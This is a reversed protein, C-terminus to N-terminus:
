MGHAPGEPADLRGVVAVIGLAKIVRHGRAECTLTPLTFQIHRLVSLGQLGQLCVPDCLSSYSARELPTLAQRGKGRDPSIQYLLVEISFFPLVQSNNSSRCLGLTYM